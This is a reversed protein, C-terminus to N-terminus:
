KKAIYYNNFVDGPVRHVGVDQFRAEFLMELAKEEGWVTGLGQGGYALSVTM